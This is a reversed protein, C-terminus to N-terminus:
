RKHKVRSCDRKTESTRVSKTIIARLSNRKPMEVFVKLQMSAIDVKLAVLAMCM